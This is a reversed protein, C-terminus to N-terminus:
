KWKRPIPQCMIERMRDDSKQLRIGRYWRKADFKDRSNEIGWREKLKRGFWNANLRYRWGNAECWTEYQQYLGGTTTMMKKDLECCEAIFQAMIDMEDRYEKTAAQVCKPEALGHQQWDRCGQLAWNLIGPLERLLKDTLGKDRRSLPFTVEFPILRVRRWFAYDDGKVIPKHNSVIVLKFQPTFEFSDRYLFRATIPDEGTLEKVLGEAMRGGEETESAVVLRKGALRAIDENAASGDARSKIMLSEARAAAAYDGLISRLVRVLTGKGNAGVGWAIFFCQEGTDGTLFYGVVRQVYDRLEPDPFIERLFKEFRTCRATGDFAVPSYRTILLPPRNDILQDTRLDLVGNALGLLMPNADLESPRAVVRQDKSAAELMAKLRWMDERAVAAALNGRRKESLDERLIRAQEDRVVELALEYIADTDDIVWRAM